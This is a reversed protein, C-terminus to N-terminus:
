QKWVHQGRKPGDAVHTGAYRRHVARLKERIKQPNMGTSQKCNHSFASVTRFGLLWAVQSISLDIDRLYHTALDSRLQKLIATFSLGEAALRRALTRGSSGLKTAVLDLRAKGHPLLPTIANEVTTRFLIANSRRYALAQECHQHLIQNLYPDADVLHLRGVKRDFMIQDNHAGFVIRCGFFKELVSPNGASRHVFHVSTPKLHLGTLARCIRILATSLCEMQQRDSHRAVGSYQLAIILEKSEFCTLVVGANVISMYRQACRLADDLTESSAAVYYLGGIERLDGDRALRFGLLPDNLADAAIELFMIQSAVAIRMERSNIQSASLGARKLLPDLLIGADRVRQAAFRTAVGLTDPLAFQGPNPSRWSAVPVRTKGRGRSM